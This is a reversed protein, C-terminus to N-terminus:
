NKVKLVNIEQQKSKLNKITLDNERKLTEIETQLESNKSKNFLAEEKKENELKYLSDRTEFLEAELQKALDNLSSNEQELKGIKVNQEIIPQLITGDNNKIFTRRINIQLSFPSEQLIFNVNSNKVTSIIVDVASNADM